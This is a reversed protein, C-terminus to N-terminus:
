ERRRSRWRWGRWVQWAPPSPSAISPDGMRTQGADRRPENAAVPPDGDAGQGANAGRQDRDPPYPEGNGIAVLRSLRTELSASRDRERELAANAAAALELAIALQRSQDAHADRWKDRDRQTEALRSELAAVRPDGVSGSRVSGAPTRVSGHEDADHETEPEPQPWVVLRRGGVTECVLLGRKCRMRVADPSVGLLPAAAAYPLLERVFPRTNPEPDRPNSGPEHESTPESM